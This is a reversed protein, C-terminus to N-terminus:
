QVCAPAVLPSPSPTHARSRLRSAATRSANGPNRRARPACAHWARVWQVQRADIASEQACERDARPGAGRAPACLLALDQRKRSIDSVRAHSPPEGAPSPTGDPRIWMDPGSSPCPRAAPPFLILEERRWCVVLALVLRRAMPQALLPLLLRRLTTVVCGGAQTVPPPAM